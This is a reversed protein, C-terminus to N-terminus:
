AVGMIKGINAREVGMVKGPNAVGMVTGSWGAAPQALGELQIITGADFSDGCVIKIATVAATNAWRSSRYMIDQENANPGGGAGSISLRHKQLSTNKYGPILISLTGMNDADDNNDSPLLGVSAGAFKAATAGTGSGDLVQQQYNSATTDGNFELFVGGFESTGSATMQGYINIRLDVVADDIGSMDLDVNTEGGDMAQRDLEVAPLSGYIGIYSGVLFTNTVTGLLIDIATIAAVNMWRGAVGITHSTSGDQAWGGSSLYAGDADGGNYNDVTALLAGSIGSTASAAPPHGVFPLAGTGASITSVNGNIQQYRYNGDTSDGNIRLLMNESQASKTSRTDGIISLNGTAASWGSFQGFVADSGAITESDVLYNEDVIYLSAVAGAAWNGGDPYIEWDTVAATNAWRGVGSRMYNESAAGHGLINKHFTTNAFRPIIYTGGGVVSSGCVGLIIDTGGSSTFASVASAEGDM